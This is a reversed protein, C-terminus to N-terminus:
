PDFPRGVCSAIRSVCLSRSLQLPGLVGRGADFDTDARAFFLLVLWPRAHLALRTAGSIAFSRARHIFYAAQDSLYQLAPGALVLLLIAENLRLVPIVTDRGLATTLPIGVM